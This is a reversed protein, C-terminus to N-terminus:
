SVILEGLRHREIKGASNRPIGPVALFRRPVFGRELRRTCHTKLADEDIRSRSAVLAWLEPVGLDNVRTLVAADDISGFSLIADEVIEPAVKDGGVNLVLNERGVVVLLGDERLCGVDGPYFCGDRLARRGDPPDGVYGSVV